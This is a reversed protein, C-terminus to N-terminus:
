QSRANGSGVFSNNINFPENPAIDLALFDLVVEVGGRVIAKCMDERIRYITITLYPSVHSASRQVDARFDQSTTCGSSHVTVALKNGLIRVGMLVEIEASVAEPSSM